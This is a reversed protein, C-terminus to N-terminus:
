DGFYREKWRQVKVESKVVELVESLVEELTRYDAQQSPMNREITRNAVEELLTRFQPSRIGVVAERILNRTVDTIAEDMADVLQHGMPLRQLGQVTTNDHLARKVLGSVWQNIDDRHHAYSEGLIRQVRNSVDDVLQQQRPMLVESTVRRSINGQSLFGEQVDTLMRVIVRDSLEELLIQYYKYLFRYIRWKRIDILGSRQLRVLLGIMRLIRLFRLGGVPVCGLVDYWRVFPYFYWRHYRHEWIAFAWGALVDFIFIAVFWLDITNFNDNLWQAAAAIPPVLSLLDRFWQLLYLTDFLILLLSAAVLALIILDWIMYLRDRWAPTQRPPETTENDASYHPEDAWSNAPPDQRDNRREGDADPRTM